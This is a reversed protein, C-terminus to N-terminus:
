GEERVVPEEAIKGGLIRYSRVAPPGGLLSVVVYHWGPDPAQDRDTASPYASTHTHSHFVGVLELGRREAERDARLLDMPPVEYVQASRAANATPIVVRVVTPRSRALLVGAVEVLEVEPDAAASASGPSLLASDAVGGGEGLLLGCAEYPLGRYCHATIEEWASDALVLVLHRYGDPVADGPSRSALAPRRVPEELLARSAGATSSPGGGPASSPPGVM